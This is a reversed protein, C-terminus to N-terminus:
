RLLQKTSEKIYPISKKYKFCTLRSRLLRQKVFRSKLVIPAAADVVGQEVFADRNNLLKAESVKM